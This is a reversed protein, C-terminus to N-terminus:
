PELSVQVSAEEEEEEEEEEQQEQQQKHQREEEQEQEEGAARSSSNCSSSRSREPDAWRSPMTDRCRGRGWYVLLSRPPASRARWPRGQAYAAGRRVLAGPADCARDDLNKDSSRANPVRGAAYQRGRPRPALAYTSLSLSPPQQPSDLM